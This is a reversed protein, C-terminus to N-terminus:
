DTSEESEGEAPEGASANLQALLERSISELEQMDLGELSAPSGDNNRLLQEGLNQLTAYRADGSFDLGLMGSQMGLADIAAALQKPDTSLPVDKLNVSRGQLEPLAAIQTNLQAQLDAVRAMLEGNLGLSDLDLDSVDYNPLEIGGDQTSLERLAYDKLAQVETDTTDKDLLVSELKGALAQLEKPDTASDSGISVSARGVADRLSSALQEPTQATPAQIVAVGTSVMAQQKIQQEVDSPFAVLVANPDRKPVMHALTGKTSYGVLLAGLLAVASAVASVVILM